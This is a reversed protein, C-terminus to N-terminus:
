CKKGKFGAAMVSGLIGGDIAEHPGLGDGVVALCRLLVEVCYNDISSVSVSVQFFNRMIIFPSLFTSMWVFIIICCLLNGFVLKTDLGVLAM